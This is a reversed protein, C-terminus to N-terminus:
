ENKQLALLSVNRIDLKIFDRAPKIVSDRFARLEALLNAETDSTHAPQQKRKEIDSLLIALAM